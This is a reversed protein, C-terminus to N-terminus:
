LTSFIILLLDTHVIGVAATYLMLALSYKLVNHPTQAHAAYEFVRTEWQCGTLFSSVLLVFSFYAIACEFVRTEWQCGTPFSISTFLVLLVNHRM